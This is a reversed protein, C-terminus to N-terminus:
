RCGALTSDHNSPTYPGLTMAAAAYSPDAVREPPPMKDLMGQRHVFEAVDVLTAEPLRGYPDRAQWKMEDLLARDNMIGHRALTDVAEARIAGHHYADCYDRAGRAFALFLKHAAAENQKAWDTNVMYAVTLTPKPKIITDPDLWFKALGQKVLLAGYPPVELAVDIAKNAFAAGMDQFPIYKIDIDKLTLGELELLKGVQYLPISGPAVIAVSRGKMDRINKIADALDPRVLLDTNIPTSGSDLALTLPLGQAVANFFGLSIGGQVVKVRGNALFPILTAASNSTEIKLEFGADRVYGKDIALFTSANPVVPAIGMDIETLTEAAAPTTACALVFAFGALRM